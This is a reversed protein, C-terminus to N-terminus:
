LDVLGLNDIKEPTPLGERDWERAEYYEDLEVEYMEKTLVQGKAPGEPLKEKMIRPPLMDDKRRIGERTLILRELNYIREGIEM